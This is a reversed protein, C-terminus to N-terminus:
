FRLFHPTIPLPGSNILSHSGSSMSTYKWAGFHSGPHASTRSEDEMRREVLMKSQKRHGEVSSWPAYERCCHGRKMDGMVLLVEGGSSGEGFARRAVRLL